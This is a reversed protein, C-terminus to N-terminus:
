QWTVSTSCVRLNLSRCTLTHGPSTLPYLHLTMCVSVSYQPPTLPTHSDGPELRAIYECFVVSVYVCFLVLSEHQLIVYSVALMFKVSNSKIWFSGRVQAELLCIWFSDLSLWVGDSYIQLYNPRFWYRNLRFLGLYLSFVLVPLPLM